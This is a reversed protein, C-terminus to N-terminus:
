LGHERLSNAGLLMQEALQKFVFARTRCVIGGLHLDLECWGKVPMNENSAGHFRLRIPHIQTKGLM